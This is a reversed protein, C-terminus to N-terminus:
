LLFSSVADISLHARLLSARFRVPVIRKTSPEPNAKNEPSRKLFQPKRAPGLCLGM